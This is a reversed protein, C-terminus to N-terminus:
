TAPRADPLDAARGETADARSADANGSMRPVVATDSKRRDDMM